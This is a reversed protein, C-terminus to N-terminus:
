LNVELFKEMESINECEKYLNNKVNFFLNKFYFQCVIFKMNSFYLMQYNQYILTNNTLSRLSPVIIQPKM